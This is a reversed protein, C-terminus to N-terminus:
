GAIASTGPDAPRGTGPSRAASRSVMLAVCDDNLEHGVHRLIDSYLQDLARDPDLGTLLAGRRRLPYFGGHEDRAESIGDTYFLLQDGPGFPVRYQKRRPDILEALGLPPDAEPPEAFSAGLGHLLLPAPHGCNLIVAEQNDEAIETLVATVFEGGPMQRALSLELHDAIEALSGADYASERFAGLVVAAAHVAGLGKGQVDGVILRLAGATAVVDYLDGGIKAAADAAVYRVGLRLRGAEAPVPRLFIRRMVDAVARTDTLERERRQRAASAAMGAATVGAIAAYAILSRGSGLHGEVFSILVGLGIAGSGTLLTRVPGLFVPALAPGLSLLPLLGVQPGALVDVGAVLVMVALPLLTALMGTGGRSVISRKVRNWSLLV